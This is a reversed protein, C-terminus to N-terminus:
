NNNTFCPKIIKIYIITLVLLLLSISAIISYVNRSSPLIKHLKSRLKITEKEKKILEDIEKFKLEHDESMILSINNKISDNSSIIDSINIDSINNLDFLPKLLREKKDTIINHPTFHSEDTLFSCGNTITLIGNNLIYKILPNKGSCLETIKLQENIFCYYSNNQYLRTIYNKQPLIEFKCTNQITQTKPNLLMILECSAKHDIITPLEPKCILKNKITMKCNHLDSELIPTVEKNNPHLLFFPTQPQIRIVNQNVKLPIPITKYLYVNDIDIIPIYLIIIIKDEILTAQPTAIAFINYPSQTKLDIPLQQNSKFQSEITKLNDILQTQQIMNLIKGNLSNELIEIINKYTKESLNIILTAIVGLSNIDNRRNSKIQEHIVIKNLESIMNKLQSYTEKNIKISQEVIYLNNQFTQEQSLLNAHLDNINDYIEEADGDTMLGFIWKYADGMLGLPAWRKSRHLSFSKVRHINLQINKLHERLLTLITECEKIEKDLSCINEIGIVATNLKDIQDFYDTLNYFYTLRWTTHSIAAPNVEYFLLGTSLTQERYELGM